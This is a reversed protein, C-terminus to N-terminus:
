PFDGNKIPLDVVTKKNFPNKKGLLSNKVPASIHHLTMCAM